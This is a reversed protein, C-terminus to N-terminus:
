TKTEFVWFISTLSDGCEEAPAPDYTRPRCLAASKPRPQTVYTLYHRVLNLFFVLDRLSNNAQQKRRGSRSAGYHARGMYGRRQM